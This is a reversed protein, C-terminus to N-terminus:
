FLTRQEWRCKTTSTFTRFTKKLQKRLTVWIESEVKRIKANLYAQACVVSLAYTKLLVSIWIKFQERTSTEKYMNADTYQRKFVLNGIWTNPFNMVSVSSNMELVRFKQFPNAGHWACWNRHLKLRTETICAVFNYMSCFDIKKRGILNFHFLECIVEILAITLAWGVQLRVTYRVWHRFGNWFNRTWSIFELTM